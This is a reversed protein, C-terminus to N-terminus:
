QRARTTAPSAALARIRRLSRRKTGLEFGKLGLLSDGSVGFFECLRLLPSVRPEATGGEWRSVTSQGVYIRVAVERQRLRSQARLMRLRQAFVSDVRPGQPRPTESGPLLRFKTPASM